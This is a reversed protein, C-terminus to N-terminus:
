PGPAFGDETGSQVHYIGTRISGNRTNYLEILRTLEVLTIKGDRDSDMSHYYPLQVASAGGSVLDPAFGDETGVRVLYRGTRLTTLRTNYLSIGRTLESLSVRGDGDTDASHAPKVVLVGPAMAVTQPLGGVTVTASAPLSFTTVDGGPVAVTYTFIVPSPPPTTWKWKLTETAGAAPKIDGATGGDAVLRWGTPLTVTWELGAAAGVYHLTNTISIAGGPVFGGGLMTQSANNAAAVTLTAPSPSTTSVGNTVSVTYTGADATQARPFEILSNTAGPLPLGNRSWQFAATPRGVAMVSLAAPQGATVAVNEPAQVIVVPITAARQSDVEFIELMTLGTTNGAGTVQATYVGPGPPTFKIASDKSTPSLATAGVSATFAALTGDSGWDDNAALETAGSFLALRPDPLSGPVGLSPGIARILYSRGPSLAVINIGQVLADGGPGARARTALYVVRPTSDTDYIELTAVGTSNGSGTVRVRYTGPDFTALVAADKSGIGFPTAGVQATATSIQGANAALGWDDNAAVTAGTALSEISLQPDALVGTVGLDTLGPGAVRVLMQKPTTGEVTFVGTLALTDAGINARVRAAIMGRSEVTLVAPGSTLSGGPGTVMVTYSGADSANIKGFTLTALNAGTIVAGDKYWQYMFPGDGTATVGLTVAGAIVGAQSLPPANIVPPTAKLPLLAISGNAGILYLNDGYVVADATTNAVGHQAATWTVGDSSTAYNTNGTTFAFIKGGGVALSRFGAGLPNFQPTWTIGDTSTRISAGESVLVFKGFAYVVDTINSTIGNANRTTWALGDTSSLVTGGAGVTVYVGAGFATKFLTQTTGTTVSTWVDSDTSTLMGGNGGLVFFRSNTFSVGAIASLVSPSRLWPGSGSLGDVSAIISGGSFAAVYKGAGYAIDVPRGYDAFPFAPTGLAGDPTIKVAGQSGVIMMSNEGAAAAVFDIAAAPLSRAWSIGDVSTLLTEPATGAMVYRGPGHTFATAASTQTIGINAESWDLGDTSRWYKGDTSDLTALFGVDTFQLSTISAVTDLTRGTWSIGDTSIFLWKGSVAVFRGAGYALMTAPRTLAAGVSWNTGDASVLTRGGTGLAVFKGGGFAVAGLANAIVGPVVSWVAGDISTAILGGDGVAVFRGAGFALANFYRDDAGTGPDRQTWIAADPSTWVGGFSSLAVYTGNGHSFGVVSNSVGLRSTTWAAGDSSAVITGRQGGGLFRGNLYTMAYLSNGQPLPLRWSWDPAPTVQQTFPNPSATGIGNGVTVRYTGADAPQWNPVWFTRHTAGPIAVGNKSWQYGIPTSGATLAPASLAWRSGSKIAGGFGTLDTAALTPAAPNVVLAASASDFTGGGHTVRVLYNGSDSPQISTSSLSPRTAGPIATGNQLWQYTVNEGGVLAISLTVATGATATRGIPQFLITPGSISTTRVLGIKSVGGFQLEGGALWLSGDDNLALDAVPTTLGLASFSSDLEGNAHARFLYRLESRDNVTEFPGGILIRGRPELRLLTPSASLTFQPAFTADLEGGAQLRAMRARAVDNVALFDGALLMKGDPQQAMALIADDTKAGFSPDRAGNPLLRAIFDGPTGNISRFSGGIVIKGDAQVVLGNIEGSPIPTFLFGNDVTGDAKVVALSDRRPLAGSVSPTRKTVVLLRGGPMPLVRDPTASIADGPRFSTDLSGDPNIRALKSIITSRYGGIEGAIIVKGDPQVLLDFVASPAGTAATSFTPDFVGTASFRALTPAPLGNVYTFSGAAIIRGDDLRVIKGVTSPKLTGPAVGGPSSGDLVAIGVIGRDHALSSSGGVVSAGNSVFAIATAAQDFIQTTSNYDTAGNPLLQATSTTIVGNFRNFAGAVYVRGDSRVDLAYVSSNFGNGTSWYPDIEGNALLQIIRNATTGNYSGFAGGVVIRGDFSGRLAFVSNSFGTGIAFTSDLTGADNLRAIASSPRGAIQTFSGGAVVGGDPLALLAYVASNPAPAYVPDTSGDARVRALRSPFSGGVVAMGDPQLALAYVGTFDATPVFAPDLSCDALLRALGARPQGSISKFIGGILIKGDSRVAATQIAGDIALPSLAADGDGDPKLWALNRGPTGNVRSFDGVVLVRGDGTRVLANVSGGAVEFAAGVTPDIGTIQPYSTPAVQVSVPSSVTVSLGDAIVVDYAGNMALVAPGLALIAGTAGPLTTGDRRWQYTLAGVSSAAVSLTLGQGAVVSAPKPATTIVPVPNIGSLVAVNSTASGFANTATVTYNGTQAFQVGTITLTPATAGELAVGNRSWQLTLPSTGIASAAFTATGGPAVPQNAPQSVFSPAVAQVMAVSRNSGAAVASAIGLTAPIAVSAPFPVISGDSRLALSHFYGAAVAVVNKLGAPVTSYNSGPSGWAVVTSDSRLALVHTDRASIATVNALGAPVDLEGHDGRGWSFVTGDSKLAIGFTPGAAVSVLNTMTSLNADADYGTNGWAVVTGDAKVALSRGDTTAIAVVNNLGSPPISQGSSNLGWGRVTGDAKLALSFGRGASIAVVGSLDAPVATQGFANDGWAVVTGDVLLALTHDRGEAIAAVRKSATVSEGVPSLAGDNTWARVTQDAKAVTLNFVSAATGGAPNTLIVEYFGQDAMSVATLNLTASTAGAIVQANHKWQYSLAPGAEAVVTFSAANGEQLLRSLPRSAIAPPPALVITAVESTVTGLPNTVVVSYGGSDALQANTITLQASRSGSIGGGDSLVTTGRKWQYTPFPVGTATVALTVTKGVNLTTGLPQALVSPASSSALAVSYFEGAAVAATQTLGRPPAPDTTGSASPSFKGWAVVSGDARVAVCHRVGAAIAVVNTLGAPVDLQGDTNKGWVVVTGDAKLAMDHYGGAAIATVNTLGSPVPAVLSGWAVVTGDSKLAIADIASDIAVVDSLGAPIPISDASGTRLSVVTGDAKLALDYGASIAVVDQLNTQIPGWPYFAVGWPIVTGDARLAITHDWGVSIDVVENLGSPVNLWNSSSGGWTAVTGDARVAAVVSRGSALSVVDGLGTPVFGTAHFPDAGWAVVTPAIVPFDVVKVRLVSRVSAVVNRVVVEYTGRDSWAVSPLTLTAGTAGLINRGNRRWQYSIVGSDTASATLTMPQGVSVLQSLPRSTITPPTVVTLAVPTSTVSGAANTLVVAYSGADAGTTPSVLLKASTAGSINGGDALNVGNRTWQYRLQLPDSVAVSFTTAQGLVGIQAVPPASIAPATIPVLALDKNGGAAVAVVNNLGAPVSLAQGSGNDGWSVVTGDSKRALTHRSGAAVAVVGSLGTPAVGGPSAGWAALTGDAKVAVSHFDGAGIAVVNGLGAPVTSQGSGPVGGWASVTSDAKLALSHYNGAAVAVVDGLNAPVVTSELFNKGWAVVAGDSKLALVHFNGAAIAVVNILGPPVNTQGEVNRGWAVVTGDGKLAVSDDVGAALAVVDNLGTPVTAKTSDGYTGWAVVTGDSRLALAHNAGQAIAVANGLGAPVDTANPWSVVASASPAVTLVFVSKATGAVNSVTVQYSGSDSYTPNSLNLAAGTVGALTQGNRKWQFSLPGAGTADVAVSVPQGVITIKSLPPATIAPAQAFLSSTLGAFLSLVTSWGGLTRRPRDHAPRPRMGNTPWALGADLVM